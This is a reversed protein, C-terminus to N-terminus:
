RERPGCGGSSRTTGTPRHRRRPRRAPASSSAPSPFSTRSPSPVGALPLEADAGALAEADAVAAEGLVTQFAGIEADGAEIAALSRRVTEAPTAKGDRVARVLEVATVVDSRM